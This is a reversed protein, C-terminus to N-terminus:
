FDDWIPIGRYTCATATFKALINGEAGVFVPTEFYQEAFSVYNREQLPTDKVKIKPSEKLKSEITNVM